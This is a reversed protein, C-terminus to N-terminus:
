VNYLCQASYAIRLLRYRVYRVILRERLLKVDPPKVFLYKPYLDYSKSINKLTKAGQIDIEMIPIKGELQISKLAEISTGYYNNHVYAYELFTNNTTLLHFTQNNVFHYSQRQIEDPRPHRTTHTTVKKFFRGYDKLLASVLRGKGVGSPGVFVIPKTLYRPPLPRSWEEITKAVLQLDLLPEALENFRDTFSNANNNSSSSTSQLQFLQKSKILLTSFTEVILLHQILLLVILLYM